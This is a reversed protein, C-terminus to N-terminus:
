EIEEYGFDTLIMKPTEDKVYDIRDMLEDFLTVVKHLGDTQVEFYYEGTPKTKLPSCILDKYTFMVYHKLRDNFYIFIFDEYPVLCESEHDCVYELAKKPNWKRKKDGKPLNYFLKRYYVTVKNGLFRSRGIEVFNDGLKFDAQNVLKSAEPFIEHFVMEAKYGYFFKDRNFGM